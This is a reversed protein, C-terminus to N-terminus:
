LKKGLRSYVFAVLDARTAEIASEATEGGVSLNVTEEVEATELISPDTIEESAKKKEKLRQIKKTM